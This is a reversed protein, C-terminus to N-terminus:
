VVFFWSADVNQLGIIRITAEPAADTDTNFFIFTDITDNGTGIQGPAMFTATGTFTWGQVGTVLPDSDMGSLQIRDGETVNFDHIVDFAGAVIGTDSVNRYIFRDADAGGILDDPGAGGDLRDQGSGGFLRDFGADGVLTDNGGLGQLVNSGSTGDIEQSFNNGTFDIPGAGSLETFVSDIEANVPLTYSVTAMVRDFTGQGADEIVVDAANDVRYIDDGAGGIMTDVGAGGDLLDDSAGGDLTDNGAQGNLLDVGDGGRLWNVGADGNILDSFPTGTVNEISSFTDGDAEGQQGRGTTLDVVVGSLGDSSVAASYDATDIGAGGAIVDAGGGGKLIDDGSGGDLNDTGGGGNLVDNGDLGFLHNAGDGGILTDNFSSGRANEVSVYTDGDATGGIGRGTLLNVAVGVRSDTYFVTDNGTGGDIQDAGGGGKIIDDGGLGSIVDAASTGYLTDGLNTGKITAM